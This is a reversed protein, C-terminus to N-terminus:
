FDEEEPVPYIGVVDHFDPNLDNRKIRVLVDMGVMQDALVDFDILISDNTDIIGLRRGDQEMARFGWQDEEDGNQMYLRRQLVVDKLSCDETIEVAINRFFNGNKENIWDEWGTVRAELRRETLDEVASVERVLPV